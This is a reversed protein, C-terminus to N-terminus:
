EDATAGEMVTIQGVFGLVNQNSKELIPHGSVKVRFMKGNDHLIRHFSSYPRREKVAQMWSSYVRDQDDPHITSVWSNGLLDESAEGLIDAGVESIWILHGDADAEWWAEGSRLVLMRQIFGNRILETKISDMTDKLTSGGNNRFDSAISKLVPLDSKIEVFEQTFERTPSVVLKWFSGAATAVAACISLLIESHEVAYKLLDLM